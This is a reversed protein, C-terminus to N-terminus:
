GIIQREWRVLRHLHRSDWATIGPSAPDTVPGSMVMTKKALSMRCQQRVRGAFEFAFSHFDVNPVNGEPATEDSLSDLAIGRASRTLLRERLQRALQDLRDPDHQCFTDWRTRMAGADTPTQVAHPGSRAAIDPRRRMCVATEDALLRDVAAAMRARVNAQDSVAHPQSAKAIEYAGTQFALVMDYSDFDFDCNWDGEAWGSNDEIADEYEGGVFVAILDNSNFLGDLNADGINTGLITEVLYAKDNGDVRNNGDM